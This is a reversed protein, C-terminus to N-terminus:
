FIGAGPPAPLALALELVGEPLAAPFALGLGLFAVAPLFPEFFFSSSVVVVAAASSATGIECCYSPM